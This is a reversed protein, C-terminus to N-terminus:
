ERPGRVGGTVAHCVAAPPSHAQLSPASPPTSSGSGAPSGTIWLGRDDQLRRRRQSALRYSNKTRTTLSLRIPGRSQVASRPATCAVRPPRAGSVQPAPGHPAGAPQPAPPAGQSDQRDNQGGSPGSSPLPGATEAGSRQGQSLTGPSCRLKWGGCVRLPPSRPLRPLVGPRSLLALPM